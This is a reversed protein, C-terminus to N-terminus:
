GVEMVQQKIWQYDEETDIDYFYREKDFDIAIGNNKMQSRLIQRAGQDGKLRLLQSFLHKSFLIPPQFRGKNNSAVFSIRNHNVSAQIFCEILQDLMGKTVFPQDALQVLVGDASMKIARKVGAQLSYAQGLHANVCPIISLRTESSPFDIWPYSHQPNTVVLIHDLRSALASQLSLSGIATEGISLSLKDRGMRESKGAALIVGILKPPNM